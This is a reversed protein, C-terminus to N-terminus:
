CVLQQLYHRCSFWLSWMKAWQDATGKGIGVDCNVEQLM